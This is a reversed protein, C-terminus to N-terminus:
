RRLLPRENFGALVLAESAFGDAVLIQGRDTCTVIKRSQQTYILRPLSQQPPLDDGGGSIRKAMLLYLAEGRRKQTVAHCDNGFALCRKPRKEGCRETDASRVCDIPFSERFRGNQLETLWRSGPQSV